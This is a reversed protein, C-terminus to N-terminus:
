LVCALLVAQIHAPLRRTPPLSKVFFDSSIRNQINLFVESYWWIELKM